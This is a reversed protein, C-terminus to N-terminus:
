LKPFLNEEIEVTTVKSRIDYMMDNLIEATNLAKNILEQSKKWESKLHEPDFCDLYDEPTYKDRCEYNYLINDSFHYKLEEALKIMFKSMVNLDTIAKEADKMEQAM